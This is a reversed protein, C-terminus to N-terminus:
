EKPARVGLFEKLAEVNEVEVASGSQLSSEQMTQVLGSPSVELVFHPSSDLVIRYLEFYPM